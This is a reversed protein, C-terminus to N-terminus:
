MVQPSPWKFTHKGDYYEGKLWDLDELWHNVALDHGQASHLTVNISIREAIKHLRTGSEPMGWEVRYRADSLDPLNEIFTKRLADRRKAQNQGKTGATYGMIKLFSEEKWEGVVTSGSKSWAPVLRANPWDFGWERIYELAPHGDGFIDAIEPSDLPDSSTAIYVLFMEQSYVRLEKGRRAEIVGKLDEDWDERGVVLSNLISSPTRAIIGFRSIFDDFDAENFPGSGMTGVENPFLGTTALEEFFWDRLEPQLFPNSM